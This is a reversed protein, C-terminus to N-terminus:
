GCQKCRGKKGICSVDYEAQGGTQTTMIHTGSHGCTFWRIVEWTNSGRDHDRSIQKKITQLKHAHKNENPVMHNTDIKFRYEEEGTVGDPSVHSFDLDDLELFEDMYYAM